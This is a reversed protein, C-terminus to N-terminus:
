RKNGYKDFLLYDAHNRRLSRTNVWRGSARKGERWAILWEFPEGCVAIAWLPMWQPEHNHVFGQCKVLLHRDAVRWAEAVGAQFQEKLERPNGGMASYRAQEASAGSAFRPHFPPDYVVTPFQGDRFPLCLFSCAADRARAPDIDCGVVRRASGKWFVGSGFTCDLVPEGASVLSLLAEVAESSSCLSVSNM